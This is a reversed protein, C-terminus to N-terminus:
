INEENIYSAILENILDKNAWFTRKTINNGNSFEFTDSANIAKPRVHFNLKQSVKPFLTEDGEQFAEITKEFVNRGDEIYKKFTFKEIFHVQVIEKGNDEKLENDLVFLPFKKGM